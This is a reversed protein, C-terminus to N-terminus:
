MSSVELRLSPAEKGVKIKDYTDDFHKTRVRLDCYQTIKHTYLDLSFCSDVCCGQSTRFKVKEIVKRAIVTPPFGAYKVFTITIGQKKYSEIDKISMFHFQEYIGRFPPNPPLCEISICSDADDEKEKEGKWYRNLRITNRCWGSIVDHEETDKMLQEIDDPTVILDDPLIIFHTYEPHQLFWFSGLRYADDENYYKLWIKDYKLKATAENFEPLDRPSPVFILPKM